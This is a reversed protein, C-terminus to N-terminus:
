SPKDWFLDELKRGIEGLGGHTSNSLIIISLQRAPFRTVLSRFGVWAGGHEMVDEGHRHHLGWGFGYSLPTGDRLAGPTTIEAWATPPVFRGAALARDWRIMDNMTTNVNGDGYILNLPTYDIVRPPANSSVEYSLARHPLPPRTEDFVASATMGAPRFINQKVFEAYSQGSLKEILQALIVYGSDSYEWKTGPAFGLKQAHALLHRADRSSPEYRDTALRRARPYNTNVLGSANYLKMYDPLGSTHQLLDRITIACGAPYFEPFYQCLSDDYDLRGREELMVVGLATFPKTISALDFVSQFDLPRRRAVDAFGYAKEFVVQGHDIVAVVAGPANVAWAFLADVQAAIPATAARASALGLM